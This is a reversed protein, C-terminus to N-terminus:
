MPGFKNSGQNSQNQNQLFNKQKTLDVGGSSKGSSIGNKKYYMFVLIGLVVLVLLLIYFLNDASEANEELIEESSKPEGAPTGHATTLDRRTRTSTTDDGSGSTPNDRSRGSGTTSSGTNTSDGLYRCRKTETKDDKCDNKDTCEKTQKQTDEPCSAPSWDECDWDSTCSPTGTSPNDDDDECVNSNCVEDSDCDDDDTCAVEDVDECVNSVCEEDSVCASLQCSSTCVSDGDCSETTCEIDAILECDDNLPCWDCLSDADCATEDNDHTSCSTTPNVVVIEDDGEIEHSDVPTPQDLAYETSSSFTYTNETDPAEITYTYETDQMPNICYDALVGDCDYQNGNDVEGIVVWKLHGTEDDYGNGDDIVTWGAPIIEDIVFADASSSGSGVDVSLTVDVQEGTEVETASLSRTVDYQGYVLQCLFLIMVIFVISGRKKIMNINKLKITNLYKSNSDKFFICYINRFEYFFVM